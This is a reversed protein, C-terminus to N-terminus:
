LKEMTIIMMMKDNIITVMDIWTTMMVTVMMIIVMMIM